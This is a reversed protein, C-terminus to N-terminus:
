IEQNKVLQRHKRQHEKAMDRERVRKWAKVNKAKVEEQLHAENSREDERLFYAKKDEQTGKLFYKLLRHKTTSQGNKPKPPYSSHM